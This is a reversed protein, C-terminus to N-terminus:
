PEVWNIDVFWIGAVLSNTVWFTVVLKTEYLLQVRVVVFVYTTVWLLLPWYYLVSLLVGSPLVSTKGRWGHFWTIPQTFSTTNERPFIVLFIISGYCDMRTTFLVMHCPFLSSLQDRRGPTLSVSNKSNDLFEHQEKPISHSLQELSSNDRGASECTWKNDLIASQGVVPM